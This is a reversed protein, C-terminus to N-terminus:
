TSFELVFFAPAGYNSNAGIGITSSRIRYGAPLLLDKPLPATAVTAAAGATLLNGPAWNYQTTVSANQASSAGLSQSFTTTGDDIILTPQPTQTAGQVLSVSVAFLQWYKGTPVTQSFETNAPPDTGTVVKRVAPGVITNDSLVDGVNPM